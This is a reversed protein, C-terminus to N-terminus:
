VSVTIPFTVLWAVTGVFLVYGLALVTARQRPASLKTGIRFALTFAM